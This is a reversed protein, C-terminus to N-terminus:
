NVPTAAGAATSDGFLARGITAAVRTETHPMLHAYINATTSPSAHGLVRSVLPLGKTDHYLMSAFTHHIQGFAM